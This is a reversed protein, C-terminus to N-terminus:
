QSPCYADRICRQIHGGGNSGARISACDTIHTDSVTSREHGVRTPGTPRPGVIAAIEQGTDCGVDAAADGPTLRM